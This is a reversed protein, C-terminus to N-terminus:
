ELSPANGVERLKGALGGRVDDCRVQPRICPGQPNASDDREEGDNAGDRHKDKVTPQAGAVIDRVVRVALLELRVRPPADETDLGNSM